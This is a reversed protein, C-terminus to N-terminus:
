RAFRFNHAVKKQRFTFKLVLLTPAGSKEGRKGNEVTKDYKSIIPNRKVFRTIIEWVEDHM